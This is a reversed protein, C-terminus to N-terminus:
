LTLVMIGYEVKYDLANLVIDDIYGSVFPVTGVTRVPECSIGFHRVNGNVVTKARRM